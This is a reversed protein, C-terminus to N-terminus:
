DDSPKSKPSLGLADRQAEYDQKVPAVKFQGRSVKVLEGAIVM